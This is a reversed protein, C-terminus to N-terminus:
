GLVIYLSFKVLTYEGHVKGLKLLEEEKIEPLFCNYNTLLQKPYVRSLIQGSFYCREKNLTFLSHWMSLSVQFFYIIFKIM